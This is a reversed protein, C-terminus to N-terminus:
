VTKSKKQLEKEHFTCVIGQGNVNGNVFTSPVTYEVKRIM